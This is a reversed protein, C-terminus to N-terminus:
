SDNRTFKLMVGIFDYVSTAAADVTLELVYKSNSTNNFAPTAVTITDIQPDTDQGVGLSGTLAISNVSVATSDAYEIRDLTVSHTDLDATTNRFIYDFGDIQFGKDTATRIAATIDIGIITTDDAVTKRQVYDGQAVRIVTWTGASHLLIDQIGLFEEYDDKAGTMELISNIIDKVAEFWLIWVQPFQGNSDTTIEQIPAPELELAM